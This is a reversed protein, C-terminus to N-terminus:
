PSMFAGVITGVIAGVATTSGVLGTAYAAVPQWGWACRDAGASPPDIELIM